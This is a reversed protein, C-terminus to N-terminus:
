ASAKWKIRGSTCSEGGSTANAVVVGAAKHGSFAGVVYIVGGSIHSSSDSFRSTDSFTGKKGAKPHGGPVNDTVDLDNDATPCSLDVRSLTFTVRRGKKAVKLTIKRGSSTKGRYTRGFLPAAPHSKLPVPHPRATAGVHVRHVSECESRDVTDFQDANVVDGGLGCSVSDPEGDVANITDNGTISLDSSDGVLTDRGPGGVLEDDGGNGTLRDDGAEGDVRENGDSGRFSDDGDGLTVSDVEGANSQDTVSDDGPGSDITNSGGDGTAGVAIIDNDDGGVVTHSTVGEIGDSNRLDINDAGTGGDVTFQSTVHHWVLASDAVRDDGDGLDVGVKTTSSSGCQAWPRPHSGDAPQATTCGAGPNIGAADSVEYTTTSDGNIVVDNAEPGGVVVLTDGSVGVSAAHAAPAAFACGLVAAAAVILRSGRTQRAM